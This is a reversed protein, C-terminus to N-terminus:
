SCYLVVDRDRPIEGHRDEIEEMAIRLAGPIMQPFAKIDIPQRLDVISIEEGAALKAMLEKPTIRAIRLGRLFRRRQIYRWLIYAALSGALVAVLWGGWRLARVAIEELQDSFIVGSGTFTLVWLLGGSADFIMFRGVPMRFVGALSPAATNLGPIFKAVLLSRAGHRVFLNETRRVCSDPELSIRCLLKLIRGGRYRGLSYWFLDAVIVAILSLAAAVTLNMKGAGALAGAAVLLPVAPIPLGMQELLVWGFLLAYGHGLLFEAARKPSLGEFFRATETLLGAFLFSLGTLVLAAVASEVYIRRARSRLGKDAGEDDVREEGGNM